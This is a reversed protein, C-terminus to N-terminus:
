PVTLSLPQKKNRSPWLFTLCVTLPPSYSTLTTVAILTILALTWQPQKTHFFNYNICTQTLAWLKVCGRFSYLFLSLLLSIYLCAFRWLQEKMSSWLVCLSAAFFVYVSLPLAQLFTEMKRHQRRIVAMQSQHLNELVLAYAIETLTRCVSGYWKNSLFSHSCIVVCM